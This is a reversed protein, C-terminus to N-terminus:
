RLERFNTTLNPSRPVLVTLASKLTTFHAAFNM